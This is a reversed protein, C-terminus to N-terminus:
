TGAPFLIRKFSHRPDVFNKRLWVFPRSQIYTVGVVDRHKNIFEIQPMISLNFVGVERHLETHCKRCLPINNSVFYRLSPFAWHPKLHHICLSEAKSNQMGCILCRDGHKIFVQRRVTATLRRHNHVSLDAQIIGDNILKVIKQQRKNILSLARNRRNRYLNCGCSINTNKFSNSKKIVYKGCSCQCYWLSRKNGNKDIHVGCWYLITLKGFTKNTLDKPPKYTYVSVISKRLAEKEAARRIIEKSRCGCSIINGKTFEHYDKTITNGCDCLLKVRLPKNLEKVFDIITLQNIKLGKKDLTAQHIVTKHRPKRVGKQYLLCGCSKISGNRLNSSRVLTTKGCDCLCKWYIARRRRIGSDEIFVLHGFRQGIM